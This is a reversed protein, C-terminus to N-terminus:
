VHARGIEESVFRQADIVGWSDKRTELYEQVSLHAFRMVKLEHDRIILGGCVHIVLDVDLSSESPAHVPPTSPDIETAAILEEPKLPWRAVLMWKLARTALEFDTGPRSEISSM